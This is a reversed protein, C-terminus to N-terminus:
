TKENCGMATMRITYTNTNGTLTLTLTEGVNTYTRIPAAAFTQSSVVVPLTGAAGLYLVLDVFRASTTLDIGHVVYLAGESGAATYISNAGSGAVINLKAAFSMGYGNDAIAQNTNNNYCIGGAVVLKSYIQSTTTNITASGNVQLKSGGDTIGGIILNGTSNSLYLLPTTDQQNILVFATSGSYIYNINGSGLLYNQTGIKNIVNYALNVVNDYTTIGSIRVNSAADGNIVIENSTNLKILSFATTNTSNAGRYSMNNPIVIDNAGAFGPIVANGTKITSNFSAAGTILATGSIQLREGSDTIKGVILNRAASIRAAEQTNSLGADYIGFLIPSATTSSNFIAMDRDVAGQIFNNTTTALGIGIQKTAGSGSNNIRLSPATAGIVVIHNDGTANNVVLRGSTTTQAGVFTQGTTKKISFQEASSVIDFIGFDNAGSNYFSGIRWLGTGSNQFALLSNNTAITQNLQQIVNVGSHVDIAAGPTSTNIGISNNFITNQTSNITLALTEVGSTNTTKITFQGSGNTGNEIKGEILAGGFTTAGLSTVTGLAISGTEDGSGFAAKSWLLLFPNNTTSTILFRGADNAFNTTPWDNNASNLILAESSLQRLDSNGITSAGSWLPITGATGSGTITGTGPGGILDWGTGNDRYFAFTDTSVFIRGVFGAAPRNALTDAFFAPTQRQNLISLDINPM